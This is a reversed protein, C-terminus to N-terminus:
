AARESGLHHGHPQAAAGTEATGVSFVSPSFVGTPDLRRKTALVRQYTEADNYFHERLRDLSTVGDTRTVDFPDFMFRGDRTSFFAADSGVVKADYDQVLAALRDRAGPVAPDYFYDTMWAIRSDRHPMATQTDAAFRRVNSHSGGLYGWACVVATGDWPESAPSMVHHTFRGFLQASEAAFRRQAVDRSYGAWNRKLYPLDFEREGRFTFADIISTIPTHKRWDVIRLMRGLLTGLPGKPLFPRAVAELSAFFAAVRPDDEAKGGDLGNWSAQVIVLPIVSAELLPNRGGSTGFVARLAALAKGALKARASDDARSRTSLVREWASRVTTAADRVINSWQLYRPAASALSVHLCFDAPLEDRDSVEALHQLLAQVLQTGTRRTWVYTQMSARSGPFESDHRLRVTVQTCLGFSGPGGGLLSFWLDDNDADPLAKNPKHIDRVLGDATIIRFSVVYDIFLGFSRSQMAYGGTHLHGGVGVGACNGHAFFYGKTPLGQYGTQLNEEVQGLKWGTGFTLQKAAPDFSWVRCADCATTDVQINRGSTSSSGNYSHGGSRVAIAIGADRAYQVALVLDAQTAPYLIHAPQM